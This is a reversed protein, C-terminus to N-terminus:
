PQKNFTFIKINGKVYNCVWVETKDATEVVDAGVPKGYCPLSYLRTFENDEVKYVEMKNGDYCTVFLYRGDKSLAITRPQKATKATFLTKGTSPNICAIEGTINFSVILRGKKDMVIHRPNSAVPINKEKTWGNNNLVSIYSSGMIAVYTKNNADDVVMGRPIASVPINKLLLGITKTNRDMNIISVNLAHWNSVLLFQDDATKAIVKPTAGTRILPVIVSDKKNTVYNHIIIKKTNATDTWAQANSYTSDLYIPVVGGANHLSVWLIKDHHSLCAEVPKEQLSPIATKTKYDWGKGKSAKFRFVRLLKRSPQDFEYISLGELNMAYLRTGNANFLVSKTGGAASISDVSQYALTYNIPSAKIPAVTQSTDATAIVETAAVTKHDVPQKHLVKIFAMIFFVMSFLVIGIKWKM